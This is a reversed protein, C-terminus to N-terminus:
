RATWLPRSALASLPSPLHCQNVIPNLVTNRNQFQVIWRGIGVRELTQLLQVFGDDLSPEIRVHLHEDQATRSFLKEAGTRVDVHERLFRVLKAVLERQVAM